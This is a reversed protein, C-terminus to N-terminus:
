AVRFAAMETQEEEDWDAELLFHANLADELAQLREDWYGDFLAAQIENAWERVKRDQRQEETERVRTIM